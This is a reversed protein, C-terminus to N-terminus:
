IGLLGRAKNKLALRDKQYQSNPDLQGQYMTNVRPLLGGYVYEDMRPDMRQSNKQTPPKQTAGLLGGAATALQGIGGLGLGSAANYVKDGITVGGSFASNAGLGGVNALQSDKAANFVFEEGGGGGGAGLSEGLGGAGGDGMVPAGSFLGTGTYAMGGLMPLVVPALQKAIDGWSIGENKFQGQSAGFTDYSEQMNGKTFQNPDLSQTYGSLVSDGQSGEGMAGGISYNAIYTQGTAPDTYVGGNLAAIKQMLENNLM